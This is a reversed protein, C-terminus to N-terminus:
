HVVFLARSVSNSHRRSLLPRGPSKQQLQRLIVTSLPLRPGISGLLSVTAYFFNSVSDRPQQIAVAVPRRQTTGLYSFRTVSLVGSSKDSLSRLSKTPSVRPETCISGIWSQGPRGTKISQPEDSAIGNTKKPLSIEQGSSSLSPTPLGERSDDWVESDEVNPILSQRIEMERLAPREKAGHLLLAPKSNPTTDLARVPFYRFLFFRFGCLFM